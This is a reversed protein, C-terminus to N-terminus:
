AKPVRRQIVGPLIRVLASRVPHWFASLLLLIAGIVVGTIALAYNVVGYLELLQSLAFLVYVLSSVMFTRRDIIMSILTILIYLGIVIGITHYSQDGQDFVGLNAFIPHMILPAALLHLWFAVDSRRTTRSLDTSDWYMAFLFTLGGCIGLILTLWEESQPYSVLLGSVVLTILSGTGAAITIPVHFRFWHVLASFATIGAALVISKEPEPDIFSLVFFFVGGVFAMLLTIAPLAMRRKLVFFEALGWSLFTFTGLAVSEGFDNLAWYSSFLLLACAIVVFIDNFGTILKFNEEDVSPSHKTSAIFQRFEAVASESFIGKKVALNLDENTYMTQNDGELAGEHRSLLLM